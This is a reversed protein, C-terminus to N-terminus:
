PRPDTLGDGFTVITKRIVKVIREKARSFWGFGGQGEWERAQAPAALIMVVALAVVGRGLQRMFGEQDPGRGADDKM